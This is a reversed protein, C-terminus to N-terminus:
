FELRDSLFEILIRRWGVIWGFFDWFMKKWLFNWWAYSSIGKSAIFAWKLRYYECHWAISLSTDHRKSVWEHEKKLTHFISTIKDNFLTECKAFSVNLANEHILSYIHSILLKIVAYHDHIKWKKACISKLIMKIIKKLNRGHVM